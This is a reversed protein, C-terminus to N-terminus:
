RAARTEARRWAIFDSETVKSWTEIDIESTSYRGESLRLKSFKDRDRTNAAEEAAKQALHPPVFLVGSPTGFVVDGPLATAGGIRVPINLGGLTVNKIPTPDVGRHFVNVSELSQIGELDRIGGHIVAGAGTRSDLATGLRDGIVTGEYIKGFIDVVMVDGPVLAEVVLWNQNESRTPRGERNATEVMVGDLDPRQPLFQATVARGVLRKGPHTQLWGGEFQREYGGDWLVSWVQETTATRLEDIVFDPVRPRGDDFRDGTWERTLECLDERPPQIRMIVKRLLPGLIPLTVPATM